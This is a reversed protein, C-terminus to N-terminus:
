GRFRDSKEVGLDRAIQSRHQLGKKGRRRRPVEDVQFRRRRDPFRVDSLGKREPQKRRTRPRIHRRARDLTAARSTMVAGTRRPLAAGGFNSGKASTEFIGSAYARTINPIPEM